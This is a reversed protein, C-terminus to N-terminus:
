EFRGEAMDFHIEFNGFCIKNLEGFTCPIKEIQSYVSSAIDSLEDILLKISVDSMLNTTAFKEVRKIKGEDLISSLLHEM